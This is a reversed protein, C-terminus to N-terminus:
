RPNGDSKVAGTAELATMARDAATKVRPDSHTQWAQIRSIIRPDNAGFEPLVEIAALQTELLEEPHFRSDIVARPQQPHFRSDVVAILVDIAEDAAKAGPAIRGLARAASNAYLFGFEDEGTLASRLARIIAPIAPQASPGFEGLARVAPGRRAPHGSRV